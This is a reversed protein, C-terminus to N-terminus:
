IFGVIIIIILSTSFELGLLSLQTEGWTLNESIDLKEKVFKKRGIWILKTNDKNMRLGSLTGFIELTNLASQLSHLTGLILTTDDAFQVLKLENEGIIIGVIDPNRLILISLVEAGILFLYSSIPDSPPKKGITPLKCYLVKVLQIYQNGMFNGM